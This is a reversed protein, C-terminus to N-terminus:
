EVDVTDCTKRRTTPVFKSCSAVMVDGSLSQMTILDAFYEVYKNRYKVLYQSKSNKANRDDSIVRDTSTSTCNSLTSYHHSQAEGSNIKVIYWRISYSYQITM